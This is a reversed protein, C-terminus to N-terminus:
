EPDGGDVGRAWIWGEQRALEPDVPPSARGSLFDIGAVICLAADLEDQSAAALDHATVGRLTRQIVTMADVRRDSTPTEGSRDIHVKATVAPYVEIAAIRAPAHPEWAVPIDKGTARRLQHLLLLAAHATRAIRDAGVDLPRKGYTDQVHRDTARRFLDNAPTDIFAGAEHRTLDQSLRAPWGLPADLALLTSSDEGAWRAIRAAPTDQTTGRAIDVLRWRGFERRARAMGVKRPDTACDIGVIATFVSSRLTLRPTAPDALDDFIRHVEKTLAPALTTLDVVAGLREGNVATAARHRPARRRVDNQSTRDHGVRPPCPSLPRQLDGADEGAM